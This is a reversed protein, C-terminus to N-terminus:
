YGTGFFHIPNYFTFTFPKKSSESVNLRGHREADGGAAPDAEIHRFHVLYFHVGLVIREFTVSGDAIKKVASQM